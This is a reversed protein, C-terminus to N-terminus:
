EVSKNETLERQSFYQASINLSDQIEFPTRAGSLCAISFCKESNDKNATPFHPYEPKQAPHKIKLKKQKSKSERNHSRM